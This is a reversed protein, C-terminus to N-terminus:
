RRANICILTIYVACGYCLLCFRPLVNLVFCRSKQQTSSATHTSRGQPSLTTPALPAPTCPRLPAAAGAWVPIPRCPQLPALHFTCPPVPTCPCFPAPNCPCVPVHAGLPFAHGLPTPARSCATHPPPGGPRLPVVTNPLCPVTHHEPGLLGM